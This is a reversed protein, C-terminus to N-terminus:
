CHCSPHQSVMCVAAPRRRGLLRGFLLLPHCEAVSFSHLGVGAVSPVRPRCLTASLWPRRLKFDEGSRAWALGDVQSYFLVLIILYRWSSSAYNPSKELFTIISFCNLHACCISCFICVVFSFLNPYCSTLFNQCCLSVLRLLKMKPLKM